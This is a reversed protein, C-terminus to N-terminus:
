AGGTTAVRIFLLVLVVIIVPRIVAAGRKLALGSGVYHGLVSFVAAALGLAIYIKGSAVFTALAGLNSALNVFKSNGNASRADMRALSIYLLLFFTGAGPGYFGDYVGVALSVAAAVCGAKGRSIPAPATGFHKQRLVVLAAAPLVFILLRSLYEGGVMLALRSGFMAGALATAVSPLVLPADICNNKWFRITSTLTGVISSLKNTALANHIPVGALLYAPLTVLGGGGAIADLFGGLFVLPCVILFPTIGGDM